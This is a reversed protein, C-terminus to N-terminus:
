TGQRLFTVLLPAKFARGEVDDVLKIPVRSLHDKFANFFEAGSAIDGFEMRKFTLEKDKAVEAALRRLAGMILPHAIVTAKNEAGQLALALVLPDASAVVAVDFLNTRTYLSVHEGKVVNPWITHAPIVYVKASHRLAYHAFPLISLDKGVLLVKSGRLLELVDRRVSLAAVMIASVDDYTSAEFPIVCKEHVALLEQAMGSAFCQPEGLSLAVARSGHRVRGTTEAGVGVVVGVAMSGLATPSDRAVTLCTCLAEDGVSLYAHTVAMLVEGGRVMVSYYKDISPPGCYHVALRRYAYNVTNAM